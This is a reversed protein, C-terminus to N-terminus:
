PVQYANIIDWSTGTSIFSAFSQTNGLEYSAAGDILGGGSNVTLHGNASSVFSQIHIQRGKNATKVAPLYIVSASDHSFLIYKDDPLIDYVADANFDTVKFTSYLMWSDTPDDGASAPDFNLNNDRVSIYVAGNAGGVESCFSGEYYTTAANWEPIGSQRLYEIQRTIVNCIGNIDQLAPPASNILGSEIGLGWAALAQIVAADASYTPTGAALSGFQGLVGTPGTAGFIKQTKTTIKAM